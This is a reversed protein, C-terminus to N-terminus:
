NVTLGRESFAVGANELQMGEVNPTRGVALFIAEARVEQAIGDVVIECVTEKDEQRFAKLEAQGITQIGLDRFEEKLVGFVEEDVVKLVRENRDMIIVQTGLRAMAQGLEASIVGGGVFLISAPQERLVWFNENDLFRVQESGPLSLQRPNSGTCIVFHEARLTEPGIQVTHPDIFKAGDSYVYVDIGQKEWVEPTEHEYIGQVIQDVHEMVSAFDAKTEPLEPLGYQTTDALAALQKTSQILAKSPVCGSHTCEGGIKHKELMAVRMGRRKATTAVVLGGSGAGIVILDYTKNM